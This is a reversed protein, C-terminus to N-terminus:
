ESPFLENAFVKYILFLKEECIVNLPLFVPTCLFFVQESHVIFVISHHWYVNSLNDINGMKFLYKGVPLNIQYCVM